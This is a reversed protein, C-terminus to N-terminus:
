ILRPYHNQFEKIVQDHETAPLGVSFLKQKLTMLEEKDNDYIGQIKPVINSKMFDSMENLFPECLGYDIRRAEGSTEWLLHEHLKFDGDFYGAEIQLLETNFWDYLLTKPSQGNAMSYNRINLGDIWEMLTFEGPKFAYIKPVHNLHQLNLMTKCENEGDIRGKKTYTKYCYRQNIRYVYSRSGDHKVHEIQFTSNYQGKSIFDFIEEPIDNVLEM